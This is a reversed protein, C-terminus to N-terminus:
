STPCPKRPSTGPLINLTNGSSVPCENNCHLVSAVAIRCSTWATGQCIPRPTSFCSVLRHAEEVIPKAPSMAAPPAVPAASGKNECFVPSRTLMVLLTLDDSARGETAIMTGVYLRGSRSACHRACRARSCPPGNRVTTTSSPLSYGTSGTQWGWSSQTWSTRLTSRRGQPLACCRRGTRRLPRGAPREDVIIAAGPGIPDDAQQPRMAANAM